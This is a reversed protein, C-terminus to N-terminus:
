AVMKLSAHGGLGVMLAPAIGANACVSIGARRIGQSTCRAYNTYDCWEAIRKIIVNVQNKGIVRSKKHSMKWKLGKDKWEKQQPISALKRFIRRPGECTEKDPCWSILKMVTQYCSLPDTSYPCPFTKKRTNEADLESNTITLANGKQGNFNEKLRIYPIGKFAGKDIVDVVFDEVCISTPELCGRTCFQYMVNELCCWTYHEENTFPNFPNKPDRAAKLRKAEWNEDFTSKNPLTGYSSDHEKVVSFVHKWYAQLQGEFSNVVPSLSHTISCVSCYVM